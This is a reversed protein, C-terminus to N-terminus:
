GSDVEHNDRLLAMKSPIDMSGSQVTNMAILNDKSKGKVEISSIMQKKQRRDIITCGTAKCRVTDELVIGRYRPDLVQSGTVSVDSSKAIEVAGGGEKSGHFCNELIMGALVIGRCDKLAIGDGLKKGGHDPNWDISNGSFVVNASEELLLTHSASSYLSNGTITVGRCKKLHITETQSGILNGTISLLGGSCLGEGGYFRINAGDPSPRAQITNGVVTGERFSSGKKRMDFLIDASGEEEPDHNYEIDNGVIQFNRMEGGSLCIGAKKNYSIHSNAIIAQHLNVNDFLIGTGTNHYIYCGSIVPNRNRDVFHVGIRCKRVLVRTLSVQMTKEFCLGVADKHAGRIEIGSIVPLRENDWVGGSFSAPSATGRHTGKFYFAPGPGAMVICALACGTISTYGKEPLNIAIPRTIRYTGKPFHLGGGGSDVAKQISATDDSTGDGKAGYETVSIGSAYEAAQTGVVPVAGCAGAGLSFHLFSRREM